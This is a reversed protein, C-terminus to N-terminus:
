SSILNDLKDAPSFNRSLREYQEVAKDESTRSGDPLAGCVKLSLRMFLHSLVTPQASLRVM